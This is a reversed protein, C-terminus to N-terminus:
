GSTIRHAILFWPKLQVNVYTLLRHYPIKPCKSDSTFVGSIFFKSGCETKVLLVKWEWGFTKRFGLISVKSKLLSCIYKRGPLTENAVMGLM